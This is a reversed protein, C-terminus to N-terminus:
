HRTHMIPLATHVGNSSVVVVLPAAAVHSLDFTLRTPENGAIPHIRDAVVTRGQSDLVGLRLENGQAGHVTISYLGNGDSHSWVMHFGAAGMEAIGSCPDIIVAVSATAPVCPAGPDVTYTYLGSPDVSPDFLSSHPQSNPGTWTGGADPTGGLLTVLDVPTANACITATSSTGADPETVIQVEVFASDNPCPGAGPVVYTYLGTQDIAPEFLQNTVLNSPNLWYGTADPSSTLFGILPIPSSTSCVLQTSGVGANAPDILTITLVAAASSCPAAGSVTYTYAGGPQGASDFQDSVVQNNPSTWVGGADPNGGLLLDMDYIGTSKCIDEATNTGANPGNNVTINSGNDTGITPPTSSVVRIRYGAGVATGPPITCAISGSTTSNLSGISVPAAFSGASNSLQATFINGPLYAGIATYDVTISSGDCVQLSSVQTTAVSNVVGSQGIIAVDDIGFGPDLATGGIGNVFKFGFRIGPQNGFAPDSITQQVWATQNNYNTIPTSILNWNAGNNITYYVQGFHTTSGSCLWWFSFDVDSYGVTSVNNTMRSFTNDASICFGDAAGFSCCLIGDAIGEVSATHLYNGNPTSIGVPQGATSVITYPFQFGICLVDGNGGTYSNNVVWTNWASVTSGADNTNLTFSPANEFDESYLTVQASTGTICLATSLLAIYRNNM